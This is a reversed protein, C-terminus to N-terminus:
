SRHHLVYSLALAEYTPQTKVIKRASKEKPIPFCCLLQNLLKPLLPLKPGSAYVPCCCGRVVPSGDCTICACEAENNYM